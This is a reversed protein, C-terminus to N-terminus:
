HSGLRRISGHEFEPWGRDYYPLPQGAGLIASRRTNAVERAAERARRLLEAKEVVGHCSLGGRTIMDRLEKISLEGVDLLEAGESNAAPMQYPLPLSTLLFVTTQARLGHASQRISVLIHTTGVTM